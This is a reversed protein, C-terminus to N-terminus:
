RVLSPVNTQRVKRRVDRALLDRRRISYPQLCHINTFVLPKKGGTEIDNYILDIRPKMLKQM